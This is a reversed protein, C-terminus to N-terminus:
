VGGAAAKDTAIVLGRERFDEELVKTWAYMARDAGPEELKRALPGFTRNVRPGLQRLLLDTVEVHNEDLNLYELGDGRATKKLDPDIFVDKPWHEYKLTGHRVEQNRVRVRFVFQVLCNENKIYKPGAYVPHSAYHISPSSYIANAGDFQPAFAAGHEVDARSKPIKLGAGVITMLNRPNTGHFAMSWTGQDDTPVAKLPFRIWGNPDEKISDGLGLLQLMSAAAQNQAQLLNQERGELNEVCQVVLAASLVAGKAREHAVSRQEIQIERKEEALFYQLMNASNEFRPSSGAGDTHRKGQAMQFARAFIKDHDHRNTANSADQGLKWVDMQYAAVRPLILIHVRADPFAVSNPHAVTIRLGAPIKAVIKNGLNSLPGSCHQRQEVEHGVRRGVFKGCFDGLRFCDPCLDSQHHKLEREQQPQIFICEATGGCRCQKTPLKDSTSKPDVWPFALNLDPRYRCLVMGSEFIRGEPEEVEVHGWGKTPIWGGKGYASDLVVDGDVIAFESEGARLDFRIPPGSNNGQKGPDTFVEAVWMGDKEARRIECQQMRCEPLRDSVMWFGWAWDGKDDRGEEYFLFKEGTGASSRYVTNGARKVANRTGEMYVPEFELKEGNSCTLIYTSGCMKKLRIDELGFRKYVAEGNEVEKTDFYFGALRESEPRNSTNVVKIIDSSVGTQFALPDWGCAECSFIGYCKHTYKGDARPPHESWQDRAARPVDSLLDRPDKLSRWFIQKKDSDSPLTFNNGSSAPVCILDFQTSLIKLDPFDDQRVQLNARGRFRGDAAVAHHMLKVTEKMVAARAPGIAERPHLFGEVRSDSLSIIDASTGTKLRVQVTDRRTGGVVVYADKMPIETDAGALPKYYVTLRDGEEMRPFEDPREGQEGDPGPDATQPQVTRPAPADDATRGLALPGDRGHAAPVRAQLRLEHNTPLRIPATGAPEEADRRGARLSFEGGGGAREADVARRM